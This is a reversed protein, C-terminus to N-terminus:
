KSHPHSDMPDVFFICGGLEGSAAMASLQADGGLPGSKCSPGYVVEPDNRFVEKLMTMTTNTGTLRFKKLVNMNALVFQKMSQKMNNCSVLALLRMQSPLFASDFDPYIDYIYPDYAKTLDNELSSKILLDIQHNSKKRQPSAEKETPAVSGNKNSSSDRAPNKSSSEKPNNSAVKDTSRKEKSKSIFIIEKGDTKKQDFVRKMHRSKNGIDDINVLIEGCPAAQREAGYHLRTMDIGLASAAELV